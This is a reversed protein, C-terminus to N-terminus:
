QAKQYVPFIAYLYQGMRASYKYQISVTTEICHSYLALFPDTNIHWKKRHYKGLKRGIISMKISELYSNHQCNINYNYM